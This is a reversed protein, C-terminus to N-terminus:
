HFSMSRLTNKTSQINRMNNITEPSSIFMMKKSKMQDIRLKHKIAKIRDDLLMKKYERMTKPVRIVPEPQDNIDKFYKNYIYSHKVSSPLLEKDKYQNQQTSYQPQHPQCPEQSILAMHQLVGQQNVVLNMNSLIDDFSVKARKQPKEKLTQQNPNIEGWYTDEPENQLSSKYEFSNNPKITKINDDLETINLEM